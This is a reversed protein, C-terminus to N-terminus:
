FCHRRVKAELRDWLGAVRPSARPEHLLLRALEDRCRQIDVRDARSVKGEPDLYDFVTTVAGAAVERLAGEADESAMGAHRWDAFCGELGWRKREAAGFVPALPMLHFKFLYLYNVQTRSTPLRNIFDLTAGVSRRTEGPYGMIFSLETDIESEVLNTVASHYNEVTDKKAMNALIEPSGTELGLILLSCNSNRLCEGTRVTISSARIFSRWTFPFGEDRFRKCFDEVARPSLLFNDDTFWVTQVVNHAALERLERFVVDMSKKSFHTGTFNCFGCRFPCGFTLSFPVVTALLERPVDKWRIPHENIAFAEPEAANVQWTIGDGNRDPNITNRAGTPRRGRKVSELLHVLTREGHADYVYADIERIPQRATFFYTDLVRPDEYFPECRKQWVRYSQEVFAGGAVIWTDPLHQRVDRAVNGTAQMNMFTTSLVVCSPDLGYLPLRRADSPAHCNLLVVDFGNRTLLTYLHLGSYYLQRAPRAATWTRRRKADPLHRGHKFYEVLNPISLPVGDTSLRYDDVHHLSDEHGVSSHGAIILADVM